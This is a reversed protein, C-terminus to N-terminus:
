AQLLVIKGVPFEYSGKTIGGNSDFYEFPAVNGRSVLKHPYVELSAAPSEQDKVLPIHLAKARRKAMQIIIEELNPDERATYIWGVHLVKQKTVEDDIQRIIARGAVKGTSPDKVVVARVKGDMIYGVLCKNTGTAEISQCFNGTETGILLLDEWDDTDVVDWNINVKVKEYNYIQRLVKNLLNKPNKELFEEILNKVKQESTNSVLLQLLIKEEHSVQPNQLAAQLQKEDDISLRRFLPYQALEEKLLSRRTELPTQNIKITFDSARCREGKKWEALFEISAGQLMPSEEYRKTHFTNDFVRKIFQGMLTILPKRENEPLTMLRSIYTLLAGPRRNKSNNFVGNYKEALHDVGDIHLIEELITGLVTELQTYNLGKLRHEQGLLFFNLVLTVIKRQDLFSVSQQRDNLCQLKLIYEKEGKSLSSMNILNLLQNIPTITPGESFKKSAISKIINQSIAEDINGVALILAPIVQHKKLEKTNPVRNRIFLTMLAATYTQRELPKPYLALIKIIDAEKKLVDESGKGLIEFGMTMEFIWLLTNQKYQLSAQQTFLEKLMEPEFIRYKACYAQFLKDIEPAADKATIEIQSLNKIMSGIESYKMRLNPFLFIEHRAKKSVAEFYLDAILEKKRAPNIHYNEIFLLAVPGALKGLEILEDENELGYNSLFKSFFNSKQEAAIKAIEFLQNKNLPFFDKIKMSLLGANSKAALKALEFRQQQTFIGRYNHIFKPLIYDNNQADLTALEYLQDHDEIGYNQIFQSVGGGQSAAISAIIFLKNKDTIGYNMIYESTNLGHESASLKALEFLWNPDTFGYNRIYQSSGDSGTMARQAIKYLQNKDQIGFNKIFLTLLGGNQDACHNALEILIAQDTFGFNQVFEEVGSHKTIGIKALTLLKSQDKIGFYQIFKPIRLEGKEMALKAILYRQNESLIEHTEKVELAFTKVDSSFSEIRQVRLKLFNFSSAIKFITDYKIRNNTSKPKFNILRLDDVDDSILTQAQKLCNDYLHDILEQFSSLSKEKLMISSVRQDQELRELAVILTTIDKLSLQPIKQEIEAINQKLQPNLRNGQNSRISELFLVYATIGNRDSQLHDLAMKASSPITETKPLLIPQETRSGLIAAAKKVPEM